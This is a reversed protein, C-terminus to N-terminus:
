VIGELTNLVMSFSDSFAGSLFVSPILNPALLADFVVARMRCDYTSPLSLSYVLYRDRGFEFFLILLLTRVM